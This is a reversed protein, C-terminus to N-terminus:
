ISTREKELKARARFFTKSLRAPKPADPGPGLAFVPRTYARKGDQPTRLWTSIYLIKYQRLMKIAETLTRRDCTIRAALDDKAFACTGRRAAFLAVIQLQVRSYM